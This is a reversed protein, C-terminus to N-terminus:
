LYTKKVMWTIPDSNDSLAKHLYEDTYVPIGCYDGIYGNFSKEVNAATATARRAFKAMLDENAYFDPVFRYPLLICEVKYPGKVGWLSFPKVVNAIDETGGDREIHAYNRADKRLRYYPTRETELEVTFQGGWQGFLCPSGAPYRRDQAAFADTFLEVSNCTAFFGGRMNEETMPALQISSDELSWRVIMEHYCAPVLVYAAEDACHVFESIGWDNDKLFLTHGDRPLDWYNFKDTVSKNV